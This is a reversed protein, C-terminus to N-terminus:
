LHLWSLLLASAITEGINRTSITLTTASVNTPLIALGVIKFWVVDDDIGM